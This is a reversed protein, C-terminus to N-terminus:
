EAEEAAEDEVEDEIEDEVEDEVEDVSAKAGTRQIHIKIKDIGVTLHSILGQGLMFFKMQTSWQDFNEDKLQLFQESNSSM